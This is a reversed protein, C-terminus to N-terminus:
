VLPGPACPDVCRFEPFCVVITAGTKTHRVPRCVVEIFCTPTCDIIIPGSGGGTNTAGRASAASQGPACGCDSTPSLTIVQEERVLATADRRVRVLSRGDFEEVDLVDQERVYVVQTSTLAIGILGKEAAAPAGVMLLDPGREITSAISSASLRACETAFNKVSDPSAM